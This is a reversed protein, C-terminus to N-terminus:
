AYRPEATDTSTSGIMPTRWVGTEPIPLPENPNEVPVFIEPRRRYLERLAGRLTIAPNEARLKELEAPVDVGLDGRPACPPDAASSAGTAEAPAEPGYAPVPFGDVSGVAELLKHAGEVVGGVDFTTVELSRVAAKSNWAAQEVLPTGVTPVLMESIVRKQTGFSWQYFSRYLSSFRVSVAALQAALDKEAEAIRGEIDAIKREFLEARSRLRSLEEIAGDEDAASVSESLVKERQTAVGSADAELSKAVQRLSDVQERTAVLDEIAKRYEM